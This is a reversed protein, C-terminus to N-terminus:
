KGDNVDVGEIAEAIAQRADPFPEVAQLIVTRLEMWEPSITVNVTGEQQLEGQLKALLEICSRAERVGTLATKMDGASEAKDLLSCAKDQLQKVQELLTDARSVEGAQRAQSLAAPLHNKKHKDLSNWPIDYDRSIESINQCEILSKNIEDLKSHECVKCKRAM